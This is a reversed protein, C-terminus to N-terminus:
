FVIEIRFGHRRQAFVADEVITLTVTLEELDVGVNKVLPEEEFDHLPTVVLAKAGGIGRNAERRLRALYTRQRNGAGSNCRSHQRQRAASFSCCTSRPRSM